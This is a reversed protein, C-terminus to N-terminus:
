KWNANWKSIPFDISPFILACCAVKGNDATQEGIRLLTGESLANKEFFKKRELIGPHSRGEFRPNFIGTQVTCVDKLRSLACALM